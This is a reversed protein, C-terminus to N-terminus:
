RKSLEYSLNTVDSPFFDDDPVPHWPIQSIGYPYISLIEDASMGELCQFVSQLSPCKNERKIQEVIRKRENDSLYWGWDTYLSGSQM